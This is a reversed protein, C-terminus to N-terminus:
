AFGGSDGRDWETAYRDAVLPWVVAIGDDVTRVRSATWGFLVFEHPIVRGSADRRGEPDLFRLAVTDGARHCACPEDGARAFAADYVPLPDAYGGNDLFRFGWLRGRTAWIFNM